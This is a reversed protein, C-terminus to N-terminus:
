KWEILRVPPEVSLKLLGLPLFTSMKRASPNFIPPPPTPLVEPKGV